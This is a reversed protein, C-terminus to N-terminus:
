PRPWRAACPAARRRGSRHRWASRPAPRGPRGRRHPDVCVLRRGDSVGNTLRCLLQSLAQGALPGPHGVACPGPRSRSPWMTRARGPRPRPGASEKPRCGTPRSPPRPTPPRRAGTPTEYARGCTGADHRPPRAAGTGREHAAPREDRAAQEADPELQQDGPWPRHPAVVHGGLDVVRHRAPVREVGREAASQQQHQPPRPQSALSPLAASDDHGDNEDGDGREVPEHEAHVVQRSTVTPTTRPATIAATASRNEGRSRPPSAEPTISPLFQIVTGLGRHVGALTPPWPGRRVACPGQASSRSTITQIPTITPTPCGARHGAPRRRTLPSSPSTLVSWSPPM